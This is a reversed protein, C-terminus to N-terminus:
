DVPQKEICPIVGVQRFHTGIGKIGGETGAPIVPVQYRHDGSCVQLFSYEIGKIGPAEQSLQLGINMRGAMLLHTIELRFSFPKLAGIQRLRPMLQWAPALLPHEATLLQLCPRASHAETSCHMRVGGGRSVVAQFGSSNYRMNLQIQLHQRSPDYRANAFQFQPPALGFTVGEVAVADIYKWPKKDGM